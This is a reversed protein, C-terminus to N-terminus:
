GVAVVHEGASVAGVRDHQRAAADGPLLDCVGGAGKAVAAPRRGGATLLYGADSRRRWRAKRAPGFDGLDGAVSRSRDPLDGGGAQALARGVTNALCRGHLGRGAAPRAPRDAATSAAARLKNDADSTTM